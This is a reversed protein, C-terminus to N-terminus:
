TAPFRGSVCLNLLSLPQSRYYVLRPFSSTEPLAQTFPYIIDGSDMRGGERIDVREEMNAINESEKLLLTVPLLNLQIGSEFGSYTM